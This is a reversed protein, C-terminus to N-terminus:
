RLLSPWLMSSHSPGRNYMQGFARSYECQSAIAAAPHSRDIDQGFGASFDSVTDEAFRFTTVIISTDRAHHYFRGDVSFDCGAIFYHTTRHPHILPLYGPLLAIGDPFLSASTTPTIRHRPWPNIPDAPPETSDVPGTTGPLCDDAECPM